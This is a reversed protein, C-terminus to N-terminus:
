QIVIRGVGTVKNGNDELNGISRQGGGEARGIYVLQTDSFSLGRVGFPESDPPKTVEGNQWM